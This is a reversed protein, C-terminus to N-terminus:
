RRIAESIAELQESLGAYVVSSGYRSLHNDDRYYFGEEDRYRCRSSPCLVPTPDLVLVGRGDVLQEFQALGHRQWDLHEALVTEVRRGRKESWYLKTPSDGLVPVTKVLVVPIGHKRLAEVTRRLARAFVQQADEATASTLEADSLYHTDGHLVGNSIWGRNYISWRSVLFVTVPDFGVAIKEFEETIGAICKNSKIRTSPRFAGVLPPCGTSSLLIGKMRNDRAYRAFVPYWAVAHSDGWVVITQEADVDGFSCHARIEDVDLSYPDCDTLREIKDFEPGAVLAEVSPNRSPIGSSAVVGFGFVLTTATATASASFISKRSFVVEAERTQKAKRFPQEVFRWSLTAIIGSFVLVALASSVSLPEPSLHRAFVLLPWHWLYLSYSILGIFVVPRWSLVRGVLSSGGQGAHIILGAGACPLIANIGPFHTTATFMTISFAICVIGLFAAGERQLRSRLPPVMGLALASGVLLEWARTPALYFAATPHSEVWWVSLALSALTVAPIWLEFRGRLYRYTLWVSIPFLVYFQEEVSLSWTHLLPRNEALVDFYGTEKWFLMNSVFFTTAIVSRGFAEFERAPFYIFTAVCTFAIMTFLAPFIRRARREYFSLLSFSGDRGEKALISTILFGSIVFFIDVGVFGGSFFGFHAHALLVPLVALARLGDIDARYKM